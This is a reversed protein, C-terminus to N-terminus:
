VNDRTMDNILSRIADNVVEVNKSKQRLFPDPETLIKRIAM